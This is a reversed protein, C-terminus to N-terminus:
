KPGYSYCHVCASPIKTGNDKPNGRGKLFGIPEDYYTSRVNWLHSIRSASRAPASEVDGYYKTLINDARNLTEDKM